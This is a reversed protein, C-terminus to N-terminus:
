PQRFSRFFQTIGVGLACFALCFAIFTWPSAFYQRRVHAINKPWFSRRYKHARDCIDAFFFEGEVVEKCLKNFLNTADESAGLCNRVVGAKELVQVDKDSDVLMDMLIAYSTFHQPVGPCCQEFAILNRLFSETSDEMVLIPIEFSARHCWWFPGEPRNFKVKFLDGEENGPVFKVGAYVLETAFPMIKYHENKGTPDPPPLCGDHVKHLIHHYHHNAAPRNQVEEPKSNEM